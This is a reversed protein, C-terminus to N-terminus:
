FLAWFLLNRLEKEPVMKFEIMGAHPTRAFPVATSMHTLVVLKPNGIAVNSNLLDNDENRAWNIQSLLAIFLIEESHALEHDLRYRSYQNFVTGIMM